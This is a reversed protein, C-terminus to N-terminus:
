VLIAIHLHFQGTSTPIAYCRLKCTTRLPMSRGWSCSYCVVVHLFLINVIFIVTYTSYQVFGGHEGEMHHPVALGVSRSYRMCCSTLLSCHLAPSLESVNCHPSLCGLNRLASCLSKVDESTSLLSEELFTGSFLLWQCASHAPIFCCSLCPFYVASRVVGNHRPVGCYM